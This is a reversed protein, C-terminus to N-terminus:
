RSGDHEALLSRPPFRVPDGSRLERMAMASNPQRQDFHLGAITLLAPRGAWVMQRRILPPFDSSPHLYQWWAPFRHREAELLRHASLAWARRGLMSSLKSM